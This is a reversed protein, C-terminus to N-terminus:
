QESPRSRMVFAVGRERNLKATAGLDLAEIPFGGTQGDATRFRITQGKDFWYDKALQAAGDKSILLTGKSAPWDQSNTSILSLRQPLPDASTRPQGTPPASNEQMAQDLNPAKSVPAPRFAGPRVIPASPQNGAVAQPISISQMLKLSIRAESKLAPRPGRNPLTLVKEPWLVPIAWEVADRRAHGKGRIRGELDVKLHPVSTVRASIPLEAGPLLIHDFELQLWGKGWLRGPERADAFRGELYAGRPFVSTGFVRVSGIDCLVPDDIAATKSSLNADELTCQLITGAPVIVEQGRLNGRALLLTASLMVLRLRRAM